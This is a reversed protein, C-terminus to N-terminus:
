LDLFAYKFHARVVTMNEYIQGHRPKNNLKWSWLADKAFSHHEKVYENWGSVINIKYFDNFHIYLTVPLYNLCLFLLNMFFCNIDEHHDTCLPNKCM